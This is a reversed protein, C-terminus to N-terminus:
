STVFFLIVAATILFLKIFNNKKIFLIISIFIIPIVGISLVKGIYTDMPWYNRTAPNGFFDPVFFMVLQWPQILIKNVFFNYDHLSRASNSILELGPFLQFAGIGLSLIILIMFNIIEKKKKENISRVISYCAVFVLFYAFIQPHGAFLSSVLSFVFLLSWAKSRKQIIEEISLLTLPLWLVVNGITNYELWVAMFLSYSYAISSFFSGIKTIGIKRSYLYMFFSALLPQLYVLISWAIVQSFIFYLFNLPYFVASQFNALLPTGSFSYPNWLPIQGSKLLSITITKWPYLQRLVDFYQAKNPFSGPNYGLYSYTKWPNYESILLDGPFPVNGYLFCKYFFLISVLFLLIFILVDKFKM